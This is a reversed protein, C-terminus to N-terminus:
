NKIIKKTYSKAGDEIFIVYVGKDLKRLDLNNNHISGKLLLQGTLNAITYTSGSTIKSITLFDKVPNPYCVLDLSPMETVSLNENVTLTYDETEGFPNVEDCAYTSLDGTDPHEPNLAVARVRMRYEGNPTGAPITINATNTTGPNSGIFYYESPNFVANNNFDIWVMVSEYDWGAGVTVSMPYTEGAAVEAVMATYDGYGNPSCETTNNIGAFTVNNIVDRDACNTAPECYSNEELDAVVLFDDMLLSLAKKQLHDPLFPYDYFASIYNIALYVEQNKYQDLDIVFETWESSTFYDGEYVQPFATFSEPNTDTTSILVRFKEYKNSNMYSSKMNFIWKNGQSGLTIQPSIIWDNNSPEISAFMGLVKQGTKADFNRIDPVNIESAVPVATTSNIIKAAFPHSENRPFRVGVIGMQDQSDLDILTWDGIDSYIWDAYEEFSTYYITDNEQASVSLGFLFAAIMLFNKNKM